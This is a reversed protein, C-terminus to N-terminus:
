NRFKKRQATSETKLLDTYFVDSESEHEDSSHTPRVRRAAAGGPTGWRTGARRERRGGPRRTRRASPGRAARHRRV